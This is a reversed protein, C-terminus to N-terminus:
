NRFALAIVLCDIGELSSADLPGTVDIARSEVSGDKESQVLAAPLRRRHSLIVVHHGRRALETAIASGVFGTGGAIAVTHLQEDQDTVETM